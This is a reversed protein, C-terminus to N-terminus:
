RALEWTAVAGLAVGAVVWARRARPRRALAKDLGAVELRLRARDSRVKALMARVSALQAARAEALERWRDRESEVAALRARARRGEDIEELWRRLRVEDLAVVWGAEGAAAAFAEASPPAAWSALTGPPEARAAGAGLLVVVLVALGRRAIARLWDERTRADDLDEGLRAAAEEVDERVSEAEAAAAELEDAAEAARAAEAILGQERLRASAAEAERQARRAALAEQRAARVRLWATLAAGVVALLLTVGGGRRLLRLWRM